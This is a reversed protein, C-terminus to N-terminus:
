TSAEWLVRTAERRKKWHNSKDDLFNDAGFVVADDLPQTQAYGLDVADLGLELVLGHIHEALLSGIPFSLQRLDFVVVFERPTEIFDKRFRKGHHLVRRTAHAAAVDDHTAM